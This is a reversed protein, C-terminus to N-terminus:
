ARRVNKLFMQERGVAQALILGARSKRDNFTSLRERDRELGWFLLDEFVQLV